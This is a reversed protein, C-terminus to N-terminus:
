DDAGAQTKAFKIFVQELTAQSIGYDKIEGKETLSQLQSFAKALSFKEKPVTFKVHSEYSEEVVADPLFSEIPVSLKDGALKIYILYGSGFKAKLHQPSGICELAGNVTIGMRSCLAEAEELSHTTLITTRKGKREELVNWQM